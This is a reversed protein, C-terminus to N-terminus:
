YKNWHNSPLLSFCRIGKAYFVVQQASEDYKVDDIPYIVMKIIIDNPQSYKRILIERFHKHIDISNLEKDGFDDKIEEYIEDSALVMVTNDEIRSAEELLEDDIRKVSRTICLEIAKSINLPRDSIKNYLIIKEHMVRPIEGMIRSYGAQM